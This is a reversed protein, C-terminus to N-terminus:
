AVSMGTTSCKSAPAADRGLRMARGRARFHRATTTRISANPRQAASTIGIMGSSPTRPMTHHGIPAAMGRPEREISAAAAVEHPM